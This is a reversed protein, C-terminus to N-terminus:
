LALYHEINVLGDIAKSIRSLGSVMAFLSAYLTLSSAYGFRTERSAILYPILVECGSKSCQERESVSESTLFLIAPWHFVVFLQILRQKLHLQGSDGARLEAARDNLSTAGRERHGEIAAVRRVAQIGILVGLYTEM